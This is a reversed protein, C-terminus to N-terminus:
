GQVAQLRHSPGTWFSAGRQLAGSGEGDGERGGLTWCAGKKKTSIKQPSACSVLAQAATPSAAQLMPQYLNLLTLPGLM